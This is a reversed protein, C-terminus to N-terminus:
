DHSITKKESEKQLEWDMIPGYVICMTAASEIYLVGLLALDLTHVRPVSSVFCACLTSEHM